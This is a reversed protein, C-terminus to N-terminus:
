VSTFIFIHTFFYINYVYVHKEHGLCILYKCYINHTHWLIPYVGLARQCNIYSWPSPLGWPFDWPFDRTDVPFDDSDTWFGAFNGFHEINGLMKLCRWPAQGRQFGMPPQLLGELNAPDALNNRWLFEGAVQSSTKGWFMPLKHSKPQPHVCWIGSLLYILFAPLTTVHHCSTFWFCGLLNPRGLIPWSIPSLCFCVFNKM